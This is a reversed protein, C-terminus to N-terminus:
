QQLGLQLLGLEEVGQLLHEARRLVVAQVAKQLVM